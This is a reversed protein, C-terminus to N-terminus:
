RYPGQTLMLTSTEDLYPKMTNVAKEVSASDFSIYSRQSIQAKIDIEKCLEIFVQRFSSWNRDSIGVDMAGILNHPRIGDVAELMYNFAKKVYIPFEPDLRADYRNNDRQRM